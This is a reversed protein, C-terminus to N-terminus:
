NKSKKKNFEIFDPKLILNVIMKHEDIAKKDSKDIEIDNLSEKAILACYENLGKGGKSFYVDGHDYKSKASKIPEAYKKMIEDNFNVKKGGGKGCKAEKKVPEPNIKKKSRQIEELKRFFEIAMDTNEGFIERDRDDELKFLIKTLTDLNSSNEESGIKWKTVKSDKGNDPLVVVFGEGRGEVMWEYNKNVLDYFSGSLGDATAVTPYNLKKLIDYYTKNMAIFIQKNFFDAKEENESDNVEEDDDDSGGIRVGFAFNAQDLKEIITDLDQQTNPKLIAGFIQFTGCM